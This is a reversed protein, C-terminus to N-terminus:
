AAHDLLAREALAALATAAAHRVLAHEDRLARELAPFGRSLDLHLLTEVAKWRVTPFRSAIALAEVVDGADRHGLRRILDLALELRGAHVNTAPPKAGDLERLLGQVDAHALDGDLLLEALACRVADSTARLSPAAPSALACRM